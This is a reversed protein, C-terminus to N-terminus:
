RFRVPRAGPTKLINGVAIALTAVIACYGADAHQQDASLSFISTSAVGCALLICMGLLLSSHCLLEALNSM